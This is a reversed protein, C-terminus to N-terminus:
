NIKYIDCANMRQVYQINNLNLTEVLENLYTDNELGGNIFVILGNELDINEFIETVKEESFENVDMVYSNDLITFLYLDDLFRNQSTNFVYLCPVNHEEEITEVIEKKDKYLYYFNIEYGLPLASIIDPLILMVVFTVTLIIYTVKQNFVKEFLIKALYFVTIILLPCV